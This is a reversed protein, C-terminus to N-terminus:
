FTYLLCMDCFAIRIIGQSSCCRTTHNYSRRISIPIRTSIQIQNGNRGGNECQSRKKDLLKMLCVM